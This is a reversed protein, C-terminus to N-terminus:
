EVRKKAPTGLICKNVDGVAEVVEQQAEVEALVEVEQVGPVVPLIIQHPRVHQHLVAALQDIPHEQRHVHQRRHDEQHCAIPHVQLLDHQHLLGGPPLVIPHGQQRVIQRGAEM